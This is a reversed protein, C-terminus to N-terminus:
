INNTSFYIFELYYWGIVLIKQISWFDLGGVVVVLWGVLGCGVLLNLNYILKYLIDFYIKIILKFPEFIFGGV